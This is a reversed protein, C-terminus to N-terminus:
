VNNPYGGSTMNLDGLTMELDFQYLNPLHESKANKIM